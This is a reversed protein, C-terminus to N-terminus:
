PVLEVAMDPTLSMLNVVLSLCLSVHENTELREREREKDGKPLSMFLILASAFYNLRHAM